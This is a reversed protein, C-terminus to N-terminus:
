IARRLRRAFADRPSPESTALASSIAEVAMQSAVEGAAAGGMGDCVLFLAGKPGLDLNMPVEGDQARVGRSVDLCLLNAENHERILGVDTKGFATIKINPPNGM